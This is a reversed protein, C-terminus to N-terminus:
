SRTKSNGKVKVTHRLIYVNTLGQGRRQVEVYGIEVLEALSKNITPRTIGIEEGMAEQGPYVANNNWAYSLLKAYVLKASVSLEKNNILCNPVQTFGGASVPDFGELIINQREKFRAINSLKEMM